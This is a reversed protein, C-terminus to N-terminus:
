SHSLVTYVQSVVDLDMVDNDQDHFRTIRFMDNPFHCFTLEM